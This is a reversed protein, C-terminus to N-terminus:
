CWVAKGTKWFQIWREAWWPSGERAPAFCQPCCRRHSGWNQWRHSLLPCATEPQGEACPGCLEVDTLLQHHDPRVCESHCEGLICEARSEGSSIGTEETGQGSDPFIM